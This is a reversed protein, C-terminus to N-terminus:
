YLRQRQVLGTITAGALFATAKKAIHQATPWRLSVGSIHPTVLIQPHQWFPHEEGLPEEHFVDLLAGTLHGADIVEILDEDIVHPGRAMNILYSQPQLKLLHAKNLVGRTEPTLPLVNILIRSAQLFADLQEPGAYLQVEDAGPRPNRVWASVPYGLGVLSQAVKQGIQGYGMIGIPWQERRIPRLVQWTKQKQLDAYPALRQTAQLVGYIAYEAMQVAMGGDEVRYVPITEPIVEFDIADVGAGMNFVAKLQPQEIFLQASPRWVIAIDAKLELGPTWEVVVWDPQLEQFIQVWQQGSKPHEVAILVTTM